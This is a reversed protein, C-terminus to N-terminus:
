VEMWRIKDEIPKRRSEKSPKNIHGLFFFGLLKEDAQLGLFERGKEEYTLGGTSWYAGIGYAAATLYMNQVACAVACIEEIEPISRDSDRKMLIAIIHSASLPNQSLKAFKAEDLKDSPTNKKYLDAQFEAMKQIAAGELVIFRWPETHKHTPAWNANELIQLVIDQDIKQGSYQPPFVSRRNKILNNIMEVPYEQNM